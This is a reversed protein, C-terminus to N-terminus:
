ISPRILQNPTEVAGSTEMEQSPKGGTAGAQINRTQPVGKLQLPSIIGPGIEDLLKNFIKKVNPDELKVPDSTMLIKFIENLAQYVAQKETNEDTIQIEISTTGFDKFYEDWTKNKNKSPKVPRITGLGEMKEGVLTMLEEKTPIRGSMLGARLESELRAPLSLNDFEELEEGELLAIVEDSNKLTKKFHPLIYTRLMDELHLGKNERMLDFLGSAERHLLAGLSYSTGSPMKEGTLSEHAGSVERAAVKWQELYNMIQPIDHSQNNVPLLPMGEKTILIEGTDIETTINRGLFQPDSTQTLLKSALDLQDKIQKTSHNIMWQPDFISEISGISLTRGDQEILHSLYYPDKSEKGSYLTIETKNKNNEKQHIFIVHMQQRYIDIDSEKGTLYYLPLEGHVEYVGIYDDKFDIGEQEINERIDKNESFADIVKEIAEGDYPQKRLQSPTFYLKEVKINGQFDVPDCIMRDWSIVSPFLQGGKEIFKSVASGYAALTYGWKNLWQGFKQKIMWERLLITAIIAKLRQSSKSPKFKIHKRDIDTAKFWTNVAMIGINLFPKERGLSDLPGSIHQSNLYANITNIKETHSHTAYKGIKIPKGFLINQEAKKVINYISELQM